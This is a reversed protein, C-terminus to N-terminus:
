KRTVTRVVRGTSLDFYLIREDHDLWVTEGSGTEMLVGDQDNQKEQLLFFRCASNKEVWGSIEASDAWEPNQNLLEHEREYQSLFDGIFHPIATM